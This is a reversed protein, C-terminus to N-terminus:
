SQTEAKRIAAEIAVLGDNVVGWNTAKKGGAEDLLTKVIGDVLKCAALLDDHASAAIAARYIKPAHWDPKAIITSPGAYNTRFYEMFQEPTKM